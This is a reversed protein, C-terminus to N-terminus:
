LLLKGCFLKKMAVLCVYGTYLLFNTLRVFAELFFNFYYYTKDKIVVRAKNINNRVKLNFWFEIKILCCNSLKM